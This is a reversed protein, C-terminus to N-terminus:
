DEGYNRKIIPMLVRLLNTIKKVLEELKLINDEQSAKHISQILDKALTEFSLVWYSLEDNNIEEKM